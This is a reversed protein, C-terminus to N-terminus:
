AHLLWRARYSIAAINYVDFYKQGLYPERVDKSTIMEDIIM